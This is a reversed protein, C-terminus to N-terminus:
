GLVGPSKAGHGWSQLLDATNERPAVERLLPPCTRRGAGVAGGDRSSAGSPWEKRIGEASGEEEAEARFLSAGKVSLGAGTRTCRQGREQGDPRVAKFVM